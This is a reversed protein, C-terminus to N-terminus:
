SEHLAAVDDDRWVLLSGCGECLMVQRKKGVEIVRQPTQTRACIDCAKHAHNVLAIVHPTGRRLVTRDYVSLTKKSILARPEEGKQAEEAIRDEIGGLEASLTELVPEIEARVSEFAAEAEEADKRLNEVMQQLHLVRAGANDINKKHAAIELHVADYERNTTIAGLRTGSEELAASEHIVSEQTDKIQAEVSLIEARAKDAATKERALADHLAQIRQPLDRRTQKLEFVKKDVAWLLLLNKLDEEITPM